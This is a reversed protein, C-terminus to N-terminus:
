CAELPSGAYEVVTLQTCGPVWGQKLQLTSLEYHSSAADSM